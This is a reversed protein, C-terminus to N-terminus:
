QVLGQHQSLNFAPPSPSSLPHSPQLLLPHCLILYNSPMVSEIFMLKLLSQSNEISLSAQRAATWPTAFLGVWSLLQVSDKKLSSSNKTDFLFLSTVLSQRQRMYLSAVEPLGAINVRNFVRSRLSKCSDNVTIIIAYCTNQYSYSNHISVVNRLSSCDISNETYTQIAVYNESKVVCQKLALTFYLSLRETTDSEKCGWPSSEARGPEETWPIRWALIMSHTTM